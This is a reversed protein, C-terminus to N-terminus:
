KFYIKVEDYTGVFVFLLFVAIGMFLNKVSYYLIVAPAALMKWIFTLVKGM